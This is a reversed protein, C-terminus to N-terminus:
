EIGEQDKLPKIAQHNPSCIIGGTMPVTFGLNKQQEPIKFGPNVEFAIEELDKFLRDLAEDLGLGEKQYSELKEILDKLNKM